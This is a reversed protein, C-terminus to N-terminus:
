HHSRRYVLRFLTAASSNLKYIWHLGRFCVGRGSLQKQNRGQWWADRIFHEEFAVINVFPVEFASVMFFLLKHLRLFAIM